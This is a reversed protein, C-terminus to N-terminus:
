KSYVDTNYFCQTITSILQNKMRDIENQENADNLGNLSRDVVAGGDM